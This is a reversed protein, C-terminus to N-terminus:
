RVEVILLSVDDAPSGDGWATVGELIAQKTEAVPLRASGRVLEALGQVGLMEGNGDFVEILGDTYLIVRDGPALEM